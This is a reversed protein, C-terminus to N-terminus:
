CRQEVIHTPTAILWKGHAKNLRISVIKRITRWPATLELRVVGCGCGGSLPLGPEGTALKDM